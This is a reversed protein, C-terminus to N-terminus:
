RVLQFEPLMIVAWLVDEIGEPTLKDGLSEKAAALEGPQPDRSLAFRYLWRVFAEPSEWDRALLLKSGRTLTDALIAGNSLDMAELTTLEDPRVSVIQDRNPRGLSRMLFDSKVLSARVMLGASSSGRSLIRAIEPGVRPNWTEPQKVVQAPQWDTPAKEFKGNGAPLTRTWEWTGDTGLSATKGDPLQAQLECYLAAPNPGSGGNKGVILVENDGKKLRSTLLLAHPQEWNDGADVKQGNVYITYSNDCTIAGIAQKPVADLTWTKRFAITENAPSAATDAYAWIWKGVLPQEAAQQPDPKGRIVPADIKAPAAGTLQWVADLFQEATMRKARPGAYTYGRDDTGKAVLQSQSQYAQSDAILALTQKLDYHNDALHVALYDLLDNDWPETQMADTPHVIGRGMMRHWLRNVITRTFRGNEPHTMLNALQKL